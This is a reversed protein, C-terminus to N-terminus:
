SCRYTVRRNDSHHTESGSNSRDDETEAGKHTRDVIASAGLSREDERSELRRGLYGAAIFFEYEMVPKFRQDQLVLSIGLTETM